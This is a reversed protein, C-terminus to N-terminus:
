RPQLPYGYECYATERVWGASEYLRQAPANNLATSLKVLSAGSARAAEVAADLLARGVGRRRASPAVYLDNLIAIPAARVSSFSPYLQAFGCGVGQTVAILLTSDARQLREAIFRAALEPDPPRGYFGRYADFLPGVLALDAPMATRIAIPATAGSGTM